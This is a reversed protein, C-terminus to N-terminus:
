PGYLTLGFTKTLFAAMQQRNTPNTPCYQLPSVVCGGTVQRNYLEEAWPAFVNGVPLDQFIGAETPPTYASGELAKLLFVAMQQRNVIADPCFQLPNTACGGTIGRNYLEEIWMAFPNSLPVDSFITGTASPPVYTSGDSSKLLFVAMQQRKVGDTPCYGGCPGGATIGNHFLNEIFKVFINSGPVDAFSGGVHLTRTMAVNESLTEKYTADWHPTGAPRTGAIEFEFCDGGATVCDGTNAFPSHALSEAITGYDAEADVITYTPGAPGTFGSATGALTYPFGSLNRYAPDVSVREGAELVGNLNSTGGSAAREDVTFPAWHPFGGRRARIIGFPGVYSFVIHRGNGSAINSVPENPNPNTVFWDGLPNMSEDYRRAQLGEAVVFEEPDRHVISPRAAGGSDLVFEDGVPAGASDFRQGALTNLNVSPTLWVVVFSGDDAMAVSPYLQTGTTYTNVQFDPGLPGGDSNYVRARIEDAESYAVVFRGTTDIAVEPFQSGLGVTIEEGLQGTDWDYRKGHIQSPGVFGAQWVVVYTDDNAAISPTHYAGLTGGAIVLDIDVPAGAVDFLRRVVGVTGSPVSGEWVVAFEGNARRAVRPSNQSGETHSNVEFESGIPAGVADFLQGQIESYSGPTNGQWVVVFNGDGDCAVDPTLVAADTNTNVTFFDSLAPSGQGFIASSGLFFLVVATIHSISRREAPRRDLAAVLASVIADPAKQALV